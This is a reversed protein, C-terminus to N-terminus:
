VVSTVDHRSTMFSPTSCAYFASNPPPVCTTTVLLFSFTRGLSKSQAARESVVVYRRQASRAWDLVQAARGRRTSKTPFLECMAAQKTASLPDAFTKHFRDVISADPSNLSRDQNRPKWKSLLVKKAQVETKPDRYGSKAALRDSRRPVLSYDVHRSVRLRAPSKILAEELPLRLSNIFDPVSM